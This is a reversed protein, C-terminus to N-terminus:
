WSRGGGYGYQQGSQGYGPTGGYGRNNTNMVSGGYGRNNDGFGAPAASPLLGVARARGKEVTATVTVKFEAKGQDTTASGAAVVVPQGPTASAAVDFDKAIQTPIPSGFAISISGKGTLSISGDATITPMMTVYIAPASIFNPQSQKIPQGTKTVTTYTTMYPMVASLNLLVIGKDPGVSETTTDYAKPGKATHVTAKVDMKLRVIRPFATEDDLAAILDKADDIAGQSGTLRIKSKGLTTVSVDRNQSLVAAAWDSDVYKLEIIESVDDAAAYGPPGQLTTARGTTTPALSITYVGDNTRYQAGSARVVQEFAQKLTVNKLVATVKLQQISPDVTYSIGTDKLLAGIADPLPTDKFDMDITKQMPDGLLISFGTFRNGTLKAIDGLARSYSRDTASYTVNPNLADEAIKIPEAGAKKAMEDLAQRLPTNKFDVSIKTSWPKPRGIMVVNSIEDIRYEGGVTKLLSTLAQRLPIGTISLSPVTLGSLDETMSYNIKRGSFLSTIASGVDAQKIELSVPTNWPDEDAKKAAPADALVSSCIGLIIACILSRSMPAKSRM